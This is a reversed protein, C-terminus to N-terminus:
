GTATDQLRRYLTSRGIGLSRAARAMCGQHHAVAFELVACELDALPRLEGKPDLMPLLATAAQLPVAQGAPARWELHVRELVEGTCVLLGRRMHRALEPLNGPWPRSQLWALAERDLRQVCGGESANYRRLYHQALDAMDEPRERLPPLIISPERGADRVHRLLPHAETQAEPITALILRPSESDGTGHRLRVALQEQLLPSIMHAQDIYLTGGRAQVWLSEPGQAALSTEIASEGLTACALTRFPHVARTSESHIARALIEKGTGPEGTMCLPQATVAARRAWHVAKQMGYSHAVIQEFAAAGKERLRMRALEQRLAGMKLANAIAIRLRARQVPKSLIDIGGLVFLGEAADSQAFATLAVIPLDPAHELVATLFRQAGSISQGSIDAILVEPVAQAQNQLAQLAIQPSYCCLVERQFTERLYDAM